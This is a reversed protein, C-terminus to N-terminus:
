RRMVAVLTRDDHEGQVRQELASLLAQRARSVDVKMNTLLQAIEDPLEELVEAMGDSLLLLAVDGVVEVRGVTVTEAHSPLAETPGSELAPQGNLWRLSGSQLDM